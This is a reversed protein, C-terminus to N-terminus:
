KGAVHDIAFLMSQLGFSIHMGVCFFGTNKGHFCRHHENKINNPEM